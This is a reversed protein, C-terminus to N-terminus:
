WSGRSIGGPNTDRSHRVAMGMGTLTFKVAVVGWFAAGGAVAELQEDTLEESEDQGDTALSEFLLKAAERIEDASVEVGVEKALDILEDETKVAEFKSTYEESGQVVEWFQQVGSSIKAM